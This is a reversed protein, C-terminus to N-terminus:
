PGATPFLLTALEDLCRDIRDFVRRFVAPDQGWPDQITRRGIPEPDLDGLVLVAARCPGAEAGDGGGEDAGAVARLRRAHAADVLVVLDADALTARDVVTSVHGSTDIGRVRAEALALDAPARGPGIFGASRVTVPEDVRKRLLAEFRNAAYPSRCVNGLCLFVM